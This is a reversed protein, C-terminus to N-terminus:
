LVRPASSIPKTRERSKRLWLGDRVTLFVFMPALVLYRRWLRRPESWLRHAWELGSRRMWVPARRVEGAHFDFAAGVGLLTQTLGGVNDRMWRDQKPSSIGVWIVHAGSREIRQRTEEMEQATLDRFPPCETGVIQIGPYRQQCKEALREAVGPKGGYFYHKLGYSNSCIVDFMDPGSTRAIDMGKARGLWVLPMGDPCVLTATRNVAVLDPDDRCAMLSAVDRFCVYRGIQDGSWARILSLVQSPRVASIPIGLVDFQAVQGDSYGSSVDM